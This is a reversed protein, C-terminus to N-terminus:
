MIKKKRKELSSFFLILIIVDTLQVDINRLSILQNQNLQESQLAVPGIHDVSDM